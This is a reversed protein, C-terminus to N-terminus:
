LYCETEDKNCLLLNKLNQSTKILRQLNRVSFGSTEPFANKLDRSLTEVLKSGWNRREIIQKGIHWYLGIVEYNIALAAKLRTSRIKNKLEKLLFKYEKSFDINKADAKVGSQETM